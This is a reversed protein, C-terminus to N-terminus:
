MVKSLIKVCVLVIRLMSTADNFWAASGCVKVVLPAWEREAELVDNLM